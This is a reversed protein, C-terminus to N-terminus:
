QSTQEGCFPCGSEGVIGFLETELRQGFPWSVRLWHSTPIKGDIWALWLDMAMSAAVTNLLLLSGARGHEPDDWAFPEGRHMSGPPANLEYFAEERHETSMQPVCLMCGRGQGPDFLRIDAQM